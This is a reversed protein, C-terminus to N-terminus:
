TLGEKELKIKQAEIYGKETFGWIGSGSSRVLGKQELRLMITDLGGKGIAKLAALDHPHYPDSHSESLLLMNCLMMDGQITKRNQYQRIQAILIGRHPSFLLSLVVVTSLVLVITPGTPCKALSASILAGILSCTGAILASLIVMVGLRDTWQRAAAAPAIILASMLVVGVSQLGIVISVVILTTLIIDIRQIPVGITKAFDSDFSLVKFEKWFLLVIIIAIVSLGIMTVLDSKLLTAANGFLFVDLGSQDAQYHRQIYTLLVLGFAFFSSLIIGLAADRKLRTFRVILMMLITGLWGAILAGLMLIGSNKIPVVMFAIAIGPLAAHAIADGLLSQKRLVAFSGLTGSVIGLTITGLAVIQLTYNSFLEYIITM